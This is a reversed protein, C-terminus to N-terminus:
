SWRPRWWSSGFRQRRITWAFRAGAPDLSHARRPRAAPPESGRRWGSFSKRGTGYLGRIERGTHMGDSGADKMLLFRGNWVDYETDFSTSVYKGSAVTRAAAWTSPSGPGVQIAKIETRDRGAVWYFLERGDRAWVPRTGGDTTVVIEGEGPSAFPRAYVEYRGTKNSQYALWRGDPSVAPNNESASTAEFTRRREPNQLPVLGLDWGGHSPYERVIM